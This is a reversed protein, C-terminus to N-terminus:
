ISLDAEPKEDWHLCNQVIRGVLGDQKTLYELTIQGSDKCGYIELVANQCTIAMEWEEVQMENDGFIYLFVHLTNFIKRFEKLTYQVYVKSSDDKSHFRRKFLVRGDLTCRSILEYATILGRNNQVDESPNSKAVIITKGNQLRERVIQM